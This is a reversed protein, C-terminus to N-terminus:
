VPLEGMYKQWNVILLKEDQIFMYGYEYCFYYINNKSTKHTHTYFRFNFGQFNLYEIRVSTKGVPNLSKLINRNQRLIKNIGMVVQETQKKQKNNYTARCQDSCFKKDQRGKFPQNCELCIEKM